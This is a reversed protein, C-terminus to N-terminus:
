LILKFIFSVFKDEYIISEKECSMAKLIRKGSRKKSKKKFAAGPRYSKKLQM